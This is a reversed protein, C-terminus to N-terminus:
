LLKKSSTLNPFGSQYRPSGIMSLGQGNVPYVWYLKGERDFYITVAKDSTENASNLKQVHLYYGWSSGLFLDGKTKNFELFEFDPEGLLLLVEQKTMQLSLHKYGELLKETKSSPADYPFKDISAIFESFKFKPGEREEFVDSVTCGFQFVTAIASIVILIHKM